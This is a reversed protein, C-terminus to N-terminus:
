LWKVLMELHDFAIVDSDQVLKGIDVLSGNLKIARENQISQIVCGKASSCDLTFGLEVLNADPISVELGSSSGIRNLGNVLRFDQGMLPGRQMVLWGLTSFRPATQVPMSEPKVTVKPKYGSNFPMAVRFVAHLDGLTILDGDELKQTNSIRTNNIRVDRAGSLPHLEAEEIGAKLTAHQSGVGVGTLVLDCNWSSGIKSEGVPVRLDEGRHAGNLFVLWGATRPGHFGVTSQTLSLSHANGKQQINGVGWDSRAIMPCATKKM